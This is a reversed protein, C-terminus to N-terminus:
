QFKGPTYGIGTGTTLEVASWYGVWQRQNGSTLNQDRGVLGPGCVFDSM